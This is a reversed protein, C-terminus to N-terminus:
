TYPLARNGIDVWKGKILVHNGFTERLYRELDGLKDLIEKGTAETMPPLQYTEPENHHM